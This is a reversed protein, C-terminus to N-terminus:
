LGPILFPLALRHFADPEELQPTHGSNELVELRSGAIANQIEEGHAVTRGRDHRGQIILTPAEVEGLRALTNSGANSRAAEVASQQSAM